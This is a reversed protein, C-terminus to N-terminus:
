STRRGQERLQGRARQAVQSINGTIEGSGQAAVGINRSSENASAVQEEVAGAITTQMDAIQAIVQGIEGIADAPRM